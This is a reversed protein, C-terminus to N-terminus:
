GLLPASEPGELTKAKELGPDGRYVPTASIVYNEPERIPIRQHFEDIATGAQEERSVPMAEIEVHYLGAVENQVDVPHEDTDEPIRRVEILYSRKETM